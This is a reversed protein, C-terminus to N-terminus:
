FVIQPSNKVFFLTEERFRIWFAEIGDVKENEFRLLAADTTDSDITVSLPNAMSKVQNWATQLESVVQIRQSPLNHRYEKSLINCAHIKGYIEKETKEILHALEALCLGCYHIHAGASMAKNLYPPYSNQQYTSITAKSNTMWFWVNTDVLFTDNAKPNDTLINIVNAQITYKIVM